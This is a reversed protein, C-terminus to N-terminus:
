PRSKRKFLRRRSREERNEPPTTAITRARPAITAVEDADVDADEDADAVPELPEPACELAIPVPTAAAPPQDEAESPGVWSLALGLMGGLGLFGVWRRSTRARPPPVARVDTRPLTTRRGDLARVVEDASAPRDEPRTALLRDVLDALGPEVNPVRRRLPQVVLPSEIRPGQRVGEYPGVDALLEYLIVGLAFLDARHDVTDASRFQEPAMYTPTGMAVGSLTQPPAGPIKAIGLDGLKPVVM